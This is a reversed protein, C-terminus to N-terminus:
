PKILGLLETGSADKLPVFGAIIEELAAVRKTLDNVQQQLANTQVVSAAVNTERKWMSWGSPDKLSGDRNMGGENTRHWIVDDAGVLYQDVQEPSAIQWGNFDYATNGTVEGLSTTSPQSVDASVVNAPVGTVYQGREKNVFGYYVSYGLQPYGTNLNTIQEVNVPKLTVEGTAPNVIFDKNSFDVSLPDAKTGKGTVPKKTFIEGVQLSGDEGVELGDGAKIGVGGAGTELGGNPKVKVGIGNAGSELGGNEKVKVGVGDAGTELGGDAKAKVGFKNAENAGKVITKDFDGDSLGGNAKPVSVHEGNPNTFVIEKDGIAMQAFPLTIQKEKGDGKTVKLNGNEVTVDKVVDIEGNDIAENVAAVLANCLVVKSDKSLTGGDCDKLGAQLKGSDLAENIANKILLEVMERQSGCSASCTM